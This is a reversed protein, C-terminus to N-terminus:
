IAVLKGGNALTYTKGGLWANTALSKQYSVTHGNGVINTLTSGSIKAGTLSTLTSDATVKWTSFADLTLAAAKATRGANIAGTLVSGNKLAISVASYRDAVIDGTLTQHDATLNATGGNSGATGWRDASVNVLTGSVASLKVGKLTIVATSNTVHFLPGTLATLSGGTMTFVGNAGQADGSFSQYIMVGWLKSGTLDSNTLSISNSGEIVAAESGTATMKAGSVTIKGTSYVGPSGSGSTIMTGGKVRITGGGRDTAVAAASGGATKITVNSISLTGGGSAM